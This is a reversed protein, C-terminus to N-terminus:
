LKGRELLYFGNGSAIYGLRCMASLLDTYSKEHEIRTGLEGVLEALEELAGDPLVPTMPMGNQEALLRNNLATHTWNSIVYLHLTDASGEINIVRQAAGFVASFYYLRDMQTGNKMNESVARCEEVLYNRLLTEM